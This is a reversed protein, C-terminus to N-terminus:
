PKLGITYYVSDCEKRGDEYLTTDIPLQAIIDILVRM